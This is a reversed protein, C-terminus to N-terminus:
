RCRPVKEVPNIRSSEDFTRFLWVPRHEFRLGLLPLSVALRHPYPSDPMGIMEM